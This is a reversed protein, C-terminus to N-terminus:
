CCAQSPALSSKYPCPFCRIKLSSEPKQSNLFIIDPEDRGPSRVEADSFIKKMRRQIISGGEVDLFIYLQHSRGILFAKFPFNISNGDRLLIQHFKSLTPQSTILVEGLLAGNIQDRFRSDCGSIKTRRKDGHYVLKTSKDILHPKM